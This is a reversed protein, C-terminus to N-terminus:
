LAARYYGHAEHLPVLLAGINNQREGDLPIGVLCEFHRSRVFADDGSERWAAAPQVIEQGALVRRLSAEHLPDPMGDTPGFRHYVLLPQADATQELPLEVLAAFDLALWDILTRMASGVGEEGGAGSRAFRGLAAFAQQYRGLEGLERFVYFHVLRGDQVALRVHIDVAYTTGDARPKRGRWQASGEHALKINVDARREPSLAADFDEIQGALVQARSYGSHQVFTTNVDIIRGDAPDVVILEDLSGDFAFQYRDGGPAITAARQPHARAELVPRLLATAADADAPRAIWEIVGAPKGGRHWRSAARADALVGIIPIPSGPHYQRLESCLALADAAEDHFELLVLDIQADQQLFARAQALDRASYIADFGQVDLADFLIRRDDRGAAVILVAGRNEPLTTM